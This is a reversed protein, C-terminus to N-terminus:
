GMGPGENQGRALKFKNFSGLKFAGGGGELLTWLSKGFSTPPSRHSHEQGRRVHLPYSEPTLM